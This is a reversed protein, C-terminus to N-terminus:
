DFRFVYNSHFFTYNTNTTTTYHNQKSTKGRLLTATLRNAHTVENMRVANEICWYRTQKNLQRMNILNLIEIICASPWDRKQSFSVPAPHPHSWELSQCNPGGNITYKTTDSAAAAHTYPNVPASPAALLQRTLTSMLRHSASSGAPCATRTVIM